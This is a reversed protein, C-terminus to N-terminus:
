TTVLLTPERLPSEAALHRRLWEQLVVIAWVQSWRTRGQLLGNWLAELGAQRFLGDMAPARAFLREEIADRWSSQMWREMPFAFAGKARNTVASPLRDRLAAVLLQKPPQAAKWRAPIRAVFEVLGHDLLPLRVELGHAMSMVDADRLLQNHMYTSLELASIRNFISSGPGGGMREFYGLADFTAGCARGGEALLDNLAEDMLQGKATLYAADASPQHRLFMRLKQSRGEWAVARLGQRLLQRAGPAWGLARGLWMLRPALWFSSYGGFLEDGGLGSMAVVTGAERTFRSVIYTNLGDVTPQDMAGLIDNLMALVGPATVVYERHDTSFREAVQRAFSTENFAPDEFGLSYTRLHRVGADRMLATIGSSDIGGSLFVGLPVDSALRSKVADLLRAELGDVAAERTMADDEDFRLEWYRRVRVFGNAAEVITGPEVSQVGEILTLPAPVSGLQLYGLLASVNVRREVLGSALVARLESAFVLTGGVQSVYLPKEGFRDRALLLRGRAADWLAFAFMGRLRTVFDAGYAEYAHM